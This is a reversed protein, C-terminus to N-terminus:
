VFQVGMVARHAEDARLVQLDLDVRLFGRSKGGPGLITDEMHQPFSNAFNRMFKSFGTGIM